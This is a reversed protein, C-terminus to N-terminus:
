ATCLSGEITLYLDTSYIKSSDTFDYQITDGPLLNEAFSPVLLGYNSGVVHILLKNSGQTYNLMRNYNPTNLWTYTVTINFTDDVIAFPKTSKVLDYHGLPYCFEQKVETQVMIITQTTTVTVTQPGRLVYGSVLAGVSCVILLVGFLVKRTKVDVLTGV